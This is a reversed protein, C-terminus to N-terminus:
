GPSPLEDTFQLYASMLALAAKIQHAESELLRAETKNSIFGCEALIGPCSVKRFIFLDKPVPAAVRRNEPYLATNLSKQALAAFLPSEEDRVYFAQPGRPQSTPFENQHVSILVAGATGEIIELRYQQDYAKKKALTDAEPPYDIDATERTMVFPLGSFLALERLKLAIDLNIESEKVGTVSRAGGDAGGHGPDIVLVFGRAQSLTEAKSERRECFIFVAATLVAALMLMFFALQAAKLKKVLVM